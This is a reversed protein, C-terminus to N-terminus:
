AACERLYALVARLKPLDSPSWVVTLPVACGFTYRADKDCGPCTYRQVATMRWTTESQRHLDTHGSPDPCDHMGCWRCAHGPFLHVNM